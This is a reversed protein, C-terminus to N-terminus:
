AANRMERRLGLRSVEVMLALVEAGNMNEPSFLGNRLYPAFAAETANNRTALGMWWNGFARDKIESMEILLTHGHREDEAIRQFTKWIARKDGELVQLFWKDDFILAGTIDDAQNNRNSASLISSLQRIMSGQTPDIFCESIYILRALQM